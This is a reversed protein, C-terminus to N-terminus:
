LTSEGIWLHGDAQHYFGNCLPITLGSGPLQTTAEKASIAGDIVSRYLKTIGVMDCQHPSLRFASVGYEQMEVMEAMLNVCKYSLTQIGNVALFPDGDMTELVMGDPSEECVFQCKDKPVGWARAHYCRASLALPLRGFVQVELDVGLASAGVALKQIVIGPLEPPLTFHTAGSRALHAMTRENYVNMYPGICHARGSLEWLASADNAEILCEDVASIQSVIQRDKKIMVEALTSFIVKKGARSLRGSIEGYYKDIFPVRKGCVVEGLYVTDVDAEDAIRFYFDRKEDTSWHFLIPGLTIEVTM